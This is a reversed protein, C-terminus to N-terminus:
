GNVVSKLLKKFNEREILNLKGNKLKYIKDCGSLTSVRHAIMIITKQNKLKYISKMLEKETKSDLSATAEDFILVEPNNYLARAIALRQRQGGSLQIGREGVKTNIGNDLNQVFKEIQATKLSYKIKSNDVKYKDVGFAINAKISDDLLFIEQGVYGLLEKWNNENKYISIEDVKIDGFSPRLLGNTLDILTSKGSGSEGIIGITEGKNIKLNVKNLVYENKYRFSINEILISNKFLIPKLEDKNYVMVKQDKFEDFIVDVSAGYYKLNQLSSLIRNISPIMRFTATVFVGLTTIIQSTTEGKYFMVLIFFILGFVTLLELYIRPLQTFTQHYSNIKVRKHINKKYYKNFFNEKMSLKVIKIGSLSDIVTKTLKKDINQRELGWTKIKKKTAEFYFFSLFGFFLGVAIAGIPEIYIITFLISIVLTIEVFLMLLARCFGAYYSIEIQINKLIESFDRNIHQIYEQYLYKQFLKNSLYAALNEIIISQKFTIIMLFVAKILYIVAITMLSWLVMEKYSISNFSIFPIYQSLVSIGEPNLLLTIVPLLIGLGLVELFMGIILIFSLFILAKKQKSSLLINIKHFYDKM